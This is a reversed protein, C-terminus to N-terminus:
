PMKRESIQIAWRASVDVEALNTKQPRTVADVINGSAHEFDYDRLRNACRAQEVAKTRRQNLGAPLMPAMQPTTWRLDTIRMYSRHLLERERRADPKVRRFRDFAELVM